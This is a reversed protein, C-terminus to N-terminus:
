RLIFFNAAHFGGMSCGITFFMQSDNCRVNPLLEDVVYHFWREQQEIRWRKDGGKNSWTEQDISDVCIIRIRGSEIFPALAGIMGYNEWDFFRGDQCAFALFAQGDHGYVKYEMDRCLNQSWWKHYEIHMTDEPQPDSEAGVDSPAVAYAIGVVVLSQNVFVAIGHHHRRVDVLSKGSGDAFLGVDVAKTGGNVALLAGLAKFM